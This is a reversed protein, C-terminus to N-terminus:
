GDHGGDLSEDNGQEDEQTDGKNEKSLRGLGCLAWLDGVLYTRASWARACVPQGNSWTKKSMFCPSSSRPRM